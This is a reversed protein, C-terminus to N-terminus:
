CVSSLTRTLCPLPDKKWIIEKRSLPQQTLPCFQGSRHQRVVDVFITCVPDYLRAKDITDISHIFATTAPAIVHLSM